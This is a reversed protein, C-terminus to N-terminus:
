SRKGLMEVAKKKATFRQIFDHKLAEPPPKIEVFVKKGSRCFLEFDPTYSCTRNEFQYYFGEPQAVFSSVENAYEFHFCANFELSSEVTQVNGNKHSAFKYIHKVPSPRLTRTYM